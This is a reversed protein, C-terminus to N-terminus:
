FARDNDAPEAGATAFNTEVAERVQRQVEEVPADANVVAFRKPEAAAQSLFAKRVRVHFEQAKSEMRDLQTRKGARKLGASSDLDLIITLDPKADKLVARFIKRIDDVSGGGAGQYAITSSVWRDCVVCAGGTLAPMIVEDWLQARSAMYLLTECGVSMETCRKDLLIERIRGGIETGGPDRTAVVEVGQEALWGALLKIQTSKGSGDPGDLVIFRGAFINTTQKM